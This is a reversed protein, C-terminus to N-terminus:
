FLGRVYSTFWSIARTTLSLASARVRDSYYISNQQAQSLLRSTSRVRNENLPLTLFNETWPNRLNNLDPLRHLGHIFQSLFGIGKRSDNALFFHLQGQNQVNDIRQDAANQDHAM